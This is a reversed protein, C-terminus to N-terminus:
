PKQLSGFRNPYLRILLFISNIFCFTISVSTIATSAFQIIGYVEDSDEIIVQASGIDGIRAGGLVSGPKLRFIYRESPEGTTDQIVNLVVAKQRQGNDFTLVGESPELDGAGPLSDNRM